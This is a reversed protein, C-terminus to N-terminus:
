MELHFSRTYIHANVSESYFQPAAAEPPSLILFLFNVVNGYQSIFIFIITIFYFSVYHDVHDLLFLSLRSPPFFFLHHLSLCLTFRRATDWSQRQDLHLSAPLPLCAPQSSQSVALGWVTGWQGPFARTRHPCPSSPSPLLLLLLLCSCLLLEGRFPVEAPAPPNM